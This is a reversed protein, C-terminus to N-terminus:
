GPLIEDVALQAGLATLPVREVRDDKGPIGTEALRHYEEVSVRYRELPVSV